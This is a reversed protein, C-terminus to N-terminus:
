LIHEKYYQSQKRLELDFTKQDMKELITKKNSFLNTGFGLREGKIKVGMSALLTPFIDFSSFQRNKEKLPKIPSNIFINLTTRDYDKEYTKNIYEAAMSTHDGTIVITTDKYFPQAKIWDIFEGIQQSEYHIINSLREPYIEKANEDLYGKPHHTDVTLCQFNFPKEQQALKSIEKKAFAFLKKDEYGWFVHYNEPLEKKARNTDWITYAGHTDYFNKRGGFKADSGICFEQNYGQEKLIDGLALTHALFPTDEKYRKSLLPVTLGVGTNTAVLGGTTWGTGAVIHAGGLKDQHSFNINDQALKSLEPILDSAYDGGNEKSTYTTELSEVYLVILNRKQKPFELEVKHSDVFYKEYIQTKRFQNIIWEFFHVQSGAGIILLICLLFIWRDPHQSFQLCFGLIITQMISKIGCMKFWDFIFETNTGELSVKLHFPIQEFCSLGFYDFAWRSSFFLASCIWLLLVYVFEAM